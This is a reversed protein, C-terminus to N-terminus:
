DELNNNLLKKKDEDINVDQKVEYKIEEDVNKKYIVDRRQEAYKNLKLKRASNPGLYIWGAELNQNIITGSFAGTISEKGMKTGPSINGVGGVVTYDGLVVKKIILYKGVVMSSMVVCGQGVTVNRGFEIFEGDAWADHMHSSFDVRIGLWRFGWMVIWPLPGNNMLWFVLKKLEVRLRWFEYDQNGEVALFVGEKPKHIMNIILLFAKTFIAIGFIFIFYLAFFWFPLLFMTIIWNNILSSMDFFVATAMYGSFWIIPIYFILFKIGIRNIASSTVYDITYDIKDSNEKGNDQIKNM